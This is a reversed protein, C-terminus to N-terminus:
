IYLYDEHHLYCHCYPITRFLTILLNLITLLHLNNSISNVLYYINVLLM